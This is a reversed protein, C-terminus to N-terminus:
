YFLYQFKIPWICQKFACLISIVKVLASFETAEESEHEKAQTSNKNDNSNAM